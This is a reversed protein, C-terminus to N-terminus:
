KSLREPGQLSSSKGLSRRPRLDYPATVRFLSIQERTLELNDVLKMAMIAALNEIQEM